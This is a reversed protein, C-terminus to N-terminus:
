EQEIMRRAKHNVRTRLYDDFTCSEFIAHRNAWRALPVVHLPKRTQNYRMVFPRAGWSRLNEIRKLDQALTTNFGVLVYVVVQTLDVGWLLLKDLANHVPEAMDPTDYALNIRPYKFHLDRLPAEALIRATRDSILRADFGSNINVTLDHASVWALWEEWHPGALFNNDLFM